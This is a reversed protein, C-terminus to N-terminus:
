SREPALLTAITASPVAGHGLPAPIWSLAGALVTALVQYTCDRNTAADRARFTAGARVDDALEGLSVPRHATTDHLSGDHHRTLERVVRAPGPPGQRSAADRM